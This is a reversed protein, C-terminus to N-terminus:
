KRLKCNRSYELNRKGLEGNMIKPLGKICGRSSVRKSAISRNSCIANEFSCSIATYISTEVLSVDSLLHPCALSYQFCALFM